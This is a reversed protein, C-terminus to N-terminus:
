VINESKLNGLVCDNPIFKKPQNYSFLASKAM